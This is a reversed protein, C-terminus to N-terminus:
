SPSCYIPNAESYSRNSSTTTTAELQTLSTSLTSSQPELQHSHSHSNRQNKLPIPLPKICLLTPNLVRLHPGKSRVIISAGIASGILRSLFWNHFSPHSLLGDDQRVTTRARSPGLAVYTSAEPWLDTQEGSTSEDKTPKHCGITNLLM